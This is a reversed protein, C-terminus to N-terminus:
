NIVLIAERGVGAMELQWERQIKRVALLNNNGSQRLKMGASAVGRRVQEQKGMSYIRNKKGPLLIWKDLPVQERTLLLIQSPRLSVHTQWSHPKEQGGNSSGRKRSWLHYNSETVAAGGGGRGQTLLSLLDSSPAWQSCHTGENSVSLSWVGGGWGLRLRWGASFCSLLFRGEFM